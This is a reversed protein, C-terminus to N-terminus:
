QPSPPEVVFIEVRRNKQRVTEDVGVEIPQFEGYGAVGMRAPEIGAAMLVDLVSIARHVSLHWNTPHLRRTEPKEIPQDDTHGVILLHLDKAAPSKFIEAFAKLLKQAEPKVIAKGEDFCIDSSFKSVGRAADFELGKTQQAFAQLRNRTDAPIEPSAPPMDKLKQLLEQYMRTMKARGDESIQLKEEIKAVATKSQDLKNQADTLRGKLEEALLRQREFNTNATDLKALLDEKEKLCAQYQEQFCGAALCVSVGLLGCAGLRAIRYGM